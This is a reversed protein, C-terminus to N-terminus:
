ATASQQQQYEAQQAEVFPIYANIANLVDDIEAMVHKYNTHGPIMPNGYGIGLRKIKCIAQILAGMEELLADDPIKPYEELLQQKLTTM